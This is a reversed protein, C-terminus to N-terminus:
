IRTIPKEVRITYTESIRSVTGITEKIDWYLTGIPWANTGEAAALLYRGASNDIVTITLTAVENDKSDRIQSKLTVGTLPKPTVGDDECYQGELEFSEGQKLQLTPTATM